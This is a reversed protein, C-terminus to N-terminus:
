VGDLGTTRRGPALGLPAPEPGRPWASPCSCSLEARITRAAAVLNELSTSTEPWRRTKLGCGPNVWLRQAPIAELGKHLVSPVRAFVADFLIAWVLYGIM